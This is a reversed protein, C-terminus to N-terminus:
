RAKIYVFQRRNLKVEVPTATTCHGELGIFFFRIFCGWEPYINRRWVAWGPVELTDIQGSVRHVVGVSDEYGFSAKGLSDSLLTDKIVGIDSVVVENVAEDSSDFVPDGIEYGVIMAISDGAFGDSTTDDVKVIVSLDEADTLQLWKTYKTSDATLGDVKATDTDLANRNRVAIAGVEISMITLMMVVITLRM